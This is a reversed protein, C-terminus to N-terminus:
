NKRMLPLWLTTSSGEGPTSAIALNGGLAQARDRMNARGRGKGPVSADFGRGNDAVVIAIGPKGELLAMKCSVTIRTANAHGLINGFAEQFIRLVHLGNSTDLWELEPVDDVNWRLELGLKNIEPEIRYRLSALLTTINGDVPELSDVAIRLDTLASKLAVIATSSSKGQREASALAAVLSSGIGDHIERMMREREQTIANSVELARRASESALLNAKTTEIRMNLQANQNERAALTSLISRAIAFFCLAFIILGAYPFTAFGVGPWLGQAAGEDHALSVGVLGAAATLVLGEASPARRTNRAFVAVIGAACILKAILAINGVASWRAVAAMLGVAALGAVAAITIMRRQNPSNTFSNSFGILAFLPLLPLAANLSPAFFQAMARPLLQELLNTLIWLFGIASLWLLRADARRTLWLALLVLTMVALIGSVIQPGQTQVANRMAYQHHVAEADGIRFGSLLVPLPADGLRLTLENKGASLMADPVPILFSQLSASGTRKESTRFLQQGNLFLSFQDPIADISLALPGQGLQERAFDIRVWLTGPDAAPSEAHHLPLTAAAWGLAPAAPSADHAVEVQQVTLVPPDAAVAAGPALLLLLLAFVACCLRKITVASGSSVPVPNM